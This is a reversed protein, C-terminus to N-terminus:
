LNAQLVLIFSALFSIGLIVLKAVVVAKVVTSFLNDLTLLKTLFFVFFCVSWLVFILSISFLIVVPWSRSSYIVVWSSLLNVDSFKVSLIFCAFKALLLPM